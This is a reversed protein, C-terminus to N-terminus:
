RDLGERKMSEAAERLLLMARRNGPNLDLVKKLLLVAEATDGKQM